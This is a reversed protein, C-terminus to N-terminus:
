GRTMSVRVSRNLDWEGKAPFPTPPKGLPLSPPNAQLDLTPAGHSPPRPGCNSLKLNPSSSSNPLESAKPKATLNLPQSPEQPLRQPDAVGSPGPARPGSSPPPSLSAPFWPPLVPACLVGMGSPRSAGSPWPAPRHPTTGAPPPPSVLGWAEEGSPRPPQAIAAASVGSHFLRCPSFGQILVSCCVGQKVLGWCRLAPPPDSRGLQSGVAAEWGSHQQPRRAVGGVGM